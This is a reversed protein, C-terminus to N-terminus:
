NADMIRAWAKIQSLGDGFMDVMNWAPMDRKGAKHGKGQMRTRGPGFCGANCDFDIEAETASASNLTCVSRLLHLALHLHTLLSEEQLVRAPPSTAAFSLSLRISNNGTIELTLAHSRANCFRCGALPPFRRRITHV